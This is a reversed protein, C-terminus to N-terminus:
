LFFPVPNLDSEPCSCDRWVLRVPVDYLRGHAFCAAVPRLGPVMVKVVAVRIDPRTQDLVLVELGHQRALQLCRGLDDPERADLRPVACAGSTGAPALYPQNELTADRLWQTLPEPLVGAAGSTGLSVVNQHMECLARMAARQLDFHAGFGFLIEEAVGGVRRTVAACVPVGLDSTTDLLWFERGLTRYAATLDRVWSSRLVHGDVAPRRVRNYWWLATADREVLELFGRAIADRMSRGAANGNGDSVCMSRGAADSLRYLFATPLFRQEPPEEMGRALSWVPTWDIRAAADFPKPVVAMPHRKANWGGRAAYQAESFLMLDNPHVGRAGLEELSARIRPEDGHATGCHRELAEALASQMADDPSLASGTARHHLASRLHGFTQGPTERMPAAAFVHIPGADPRSIREISSVLGTVPGVLRKAADSTGHTDREAGFRDIARAYLQTDGCAPCQPRRAVEHRELTDRAADYTLIAGCVPDTTLRAVLAAMRKASARAPPAARAIRVSKTCCSALYAHVPRAVAYRHAFCSWCATSGPVFLPGVSLEGGAACVPIWPFGDRLALANATALRSSLYNSALVVRLGEVHGAAVAALARLDDPSAPARTARTWPAAECICGRRELELLVWYTVAPQVKPELKAALQDSTRRGDILRAVRAFIDGEFMAHERASVFFLAENRVLEVRWQPSFAPTEIM